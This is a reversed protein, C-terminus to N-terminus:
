TATNVFGCNDGRKWASWRPKFTRFMRPFMERERRDHSDLGKGTKPTSHCFREIREIWSDNQSPWTTIIIIIRLSFNSLDTIISIKLINRSSLFIPSSSSDRKTISFNTLLIKFPIHIYLEHPYNPLTEHFLRAPKDFSNFFDCSPHNLGDRRGRISM